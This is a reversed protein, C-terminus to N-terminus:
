KLRDRFKITWMIWKGHEDRGGVMQIDGNPLQHCKTYSSMLNHCDSEFYHRDGPNIKTQVKPRKKHKECKFTYRPYDPYEDIREEQQNIRGDVIEECQKSPLPYSVAGILGSATYVVLFISAM